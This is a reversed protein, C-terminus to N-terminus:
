KSETDGVAQYSISSTALFTSSEEDIDLAPFFNGHGIQSKIPAGAFVDSQASATISVGGEFGGGADLTPFLSKPQPKPSAVPKAAGVTLAVSGKTDKLVSIASLKSLGIVSKDNVALIQDGVKLNGETAAPGGMTVDKVFIGSLGKEDENEYIAFGLGRPGKQLTINKTNPYDAPTPLPM